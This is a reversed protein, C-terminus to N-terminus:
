IRPSAASPPASATPPRTAAEDMQVGRLPRATAARGRHRTM